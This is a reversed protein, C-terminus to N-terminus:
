LFAQKRKKLHDYPITRQSTKVIPLKADIASIDTEQPCFLYQPRKGNTLVLWGSWNTLLYYGSKKFSNQQFVM